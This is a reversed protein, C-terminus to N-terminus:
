EPKPLLNISGLRRGSPLDIVDLRDPKGARRLRLVLQGGSIAMGAVEAGKPIVVDLDGFDSLAPASMAPAPAKASSSEPTGRKVVTAILGVVGAVILVSMIIVSIKLVRM